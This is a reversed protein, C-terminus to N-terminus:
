NSGSTSSAGKERMKNFLARGAVDAEMPEFGAEQLLNMLSQMNEVVVTSPLSDAHGM